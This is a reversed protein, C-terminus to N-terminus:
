FIGFIERVLGLSVLFTEIAKSIMYLTGEKVKKRFYKGIQIFTPIFLWLAFLICLFKELSLLLLAYVSAFIACGWLFFSITKNLTVKVGELKNEIEQNENNAQPQAYVPSRVNETV